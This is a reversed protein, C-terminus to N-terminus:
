PAEAPVAARVTTGGGPTSEVQIYGGVAAAREQMSTVGWRTSRALREGPDFGRGDDSIEMLVEPDQRALAVRVARAGAHKVVNALAEQAIRFLAIAAERRLGLEGPDDFAARIGTRQEFGQLCHALAAGLGYEDLLPPRLDAMLGEITQLTGEVLALSDALRVRAEMSEKPLLGLAIDLNINLASLNQGVRDHLEAAIRRREIEEGEVLRRALSQLQYAMDLLAKEERPEGQPEGPRGHRRLTIDEVVAVVYRPEGSEGPVRAVVNRVWVAHGDKRLYRKEFEIHDGLGAAMDEFVRRNEPLDHPHTVDHITKQRLEQESYGLLRLFAPNAAVYRGSLDALAIGHPAHELM